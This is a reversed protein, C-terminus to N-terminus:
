LGSPNESGRTVGSYVVDKPKASESIIGLLSDLKDALSTTVPYRRLEQVFRLPDLGFIPLFGDSDGYVLALGGVELLDDLSREAAFAKRRERFRLKLCVDSFELFLYPGELLSTDVM